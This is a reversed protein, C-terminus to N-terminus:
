ESVRRLRYRRGTGGHGAATKATENAEVEGSQTLRDLAADLWRRRESDLARYLNAHATWGDPDASKPLRKRVWDCVKKIARDELTDDVIAQREAAARGVAANQQRKAEALHALTRERISDLHAMILGALRWDDDTVNTRGHLHPYLDANPGPKPDGLLALAAAVKLRILLAHGRTSDGQGRLTIRRNERIETRATEYVDIHTLGGDPIDTDLPLSWTWQVPEGPM